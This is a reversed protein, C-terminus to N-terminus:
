LPVSQMNATTGLAADHKEIQLDDSRQAVTKTIYVAAFDIELFLTMAEASKWVM